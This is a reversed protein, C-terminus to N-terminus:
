NEGIKQTLGAQQLQHCQLLHRAMATETMGHMCAWDKATPSLTIRTESHVTYLKDDDM